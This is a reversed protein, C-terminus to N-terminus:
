ESLYQGAERKSAEARKGCGGLILSLRARFLRALARLGFAGAGLTRVPGLAGGTLFHEPAEIGVAVANETFLFAGGRPFGEAFFSLGTLLFRLLFGAAARTRFAGFPRLAGGTLFHEPAEIGVAVANETFLFAGGCPFGEALFM